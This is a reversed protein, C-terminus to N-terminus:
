GVRERFGLEVTGVVEEFEGGSAGGGAEVM